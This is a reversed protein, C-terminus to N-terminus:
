ETGCAFRGGGGGDSGAPRRPGCGAAAGARVRGRPAARFDLSAVAPRSTKISRAAASAAARSPPIAHAELSATRVVSGAIRRHTEPRLPALGEAAGYLDKRHQELQHQTAARDRSDPPPQTRNSSSAASPWILFFEGLAVEVLDLRLTRPPTRPRWPPCQRLASLPRPLPCSSLGLGSAEQARSASTQTTARVPPPNPSGVEAQQPPRHTFTLGILPPGDIVLRNGPAAHCCTCSLGM